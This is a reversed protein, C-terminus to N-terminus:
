RTIDRAVSTVRGDVCTFSLRLPLGGALPEYTYRSADAPREGTGQLTELKSPPGLEATVEDCKRDAAVRSRAAEGAVSPAASAAPPTAGPGPGAAAPGTGAASPGPAVAGPGPGAGSPGTGAAGPGPAVAGPGPGAAAPGPAAAAPSAAGAPGDTRSWEVTNTRFGVRTPGNATQYVWVEPVNEATTGRRIERPQGLAQQVWRKPMGQIVLGQQAATRWRGDRDGPDQSQANDTKIEVAAGKAGGTCPEQQYTVNGTADVCKFVEAHAPALPLALVIAILLRRM